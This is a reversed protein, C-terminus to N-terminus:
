YQYEKKKTVLFYITVFLALIEATLSAAWIGNLDFFYPLILIALVEFLLTRLFSIIASVRSNHLATFFASTFVSLGMVMYSLSHLAFGEETLTLLAEDEPFFVKAFPGEICTAIGYLLFGMVVVSITSRRFLGHLEERNKVEYHYSFLPASGVAFGLFVAGFLFGVNMLVGYAAVGNLGELHMLRYNYMVSALPHFIESVFESAGNAFIAGLTAGALHPRGFHLTITRSRYFYIFPVIGGIFQSVVTALAVALVADDILQIFVFDLFINLFASILNILLGVKPREAVIFFSQFVNQLVFLPTAALLIRAYRLCYPMMVDNAGLFLSVPRVLFLAIVALVIAGIISVLTLFSFQQNAEEQKGSAVSKAVVASGGAGILYAWAGVLLPLPTILTVSAFAEKGTYRALYLGDVVGYMSTFLMMLITPIVFRFLRGYTFHDSLRIRKSTIAHM